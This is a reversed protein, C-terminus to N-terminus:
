PKATAAVKARNAHRTLTKELREKFAVPDVPEFGSDVPSFLFLDQTAKGEPSWHMPAVSWSMSQARIARANVEAATWGSRNLGLTSAFRVFDYGLGSWADPVDTGSQKMAETLAEGAASPAVPNWAGPFVALGFHRVDLGTQGTLGQEWLATGLLVQRDEGHYFLNPALMESNKWGDPIFTARFTATPLPVKNVERVGVFSAAIRNWDEPQSPPYSTTRATTGGHAQVQENFLAAMKRGFSDDPHLVGYSNIGLEKETFRLLANVQDDPSAFFRWAIRGEEGTELQPMFTFFARKQPLGRERAASFANARMPGGVAVCKEPLKDLKDLWDASETNIVSVEVDAGRRALEWQAASAGRAVKWGISSFPGTMPLALAVCGAAPSAGPAPQMAESAAPAQPAASQSLVTGLLKPDEFTTSRQLKELAASATGGQGPTSVMRRVQELQIVSWPYRSETEPTVTGALRELTPADTQHLEGYLRNELAVRYGADSQSYLESLTRLSATGENSEWQRTALLLGAQARLPWPKKPDHYATNARRVADDKPLKSVAQYWADQWERGQEANPELKRWNELADLAVNPRGNAASALAYRKWAERQDQPPLGPSNAMIGYLREASTMDGKKWAERAQVAVPASAPPVSEVRTSTSPTVPQQQTPFAITRRQGGCGSVLLMCAFTVVCARFLRQRRGTAPAQISLSTKM